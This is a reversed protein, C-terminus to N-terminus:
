LIEKLLDEFRKKVVESYGLYKAKLVGEKDIVFTCPLGTVGYRRGIISFEDLLVPLRVGLAQTFKKVTEEKASDQTLVSVVHLGKSSHQDQVKQLYKLDEKCPGCWTAFFSLILVRKEQNEWYDKLAIRKGDLTNTIFAPAKEGLQSQAYTLSSFSLPILLFITLTLLNQKHTIIRHKKM